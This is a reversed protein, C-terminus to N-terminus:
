ALLILELEALAVLECVEGMLFDVAATTTDIIAITAPLLLWLLLLPAAPRLRGINVKILLYSQYIIHIIRDIDKV